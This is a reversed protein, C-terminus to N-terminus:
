QNPALKVRAQKTETGRQYDITVESLAEKESLALQLADLTAIANGDVRLIQDGIKIGQAAASSEKAVAKVLMGAPSQEVEIGWDPEMGPSWKGIKEGELLKSLQSEITGWHVRTYLMGGYPSQRAALGIIQGDTSFLPSGVAQQMDNRDIWLSSKYARRLQVVEPAIKPIGESTRPWNASLYPRDFQLDDSNWIGVTPFQQDKVNLRIITVDMARSTGRIEGELVKEGMPEPGAFNGTTLHVKVMGSKGSLPHASTMLWGNNNIIAAGLRRGDDLEIWAMAPWVRQMLNLSLEERAKRNVQEPSPAQPILVFDEQRRAFYIHDIWATEGGVASLTAADLDCSGFDAYLDRTIVVWHSPLRDNWVRISSEIIPKGPGVLFCPVELRNDRSSLEIAAHGDGQKKVAFRVFRYQGWAPQERVEITRGFDIKARDGPTIALSQQGYYKEIDTFASTAQPHESELQTAIREELARFLTPLQPLVAISRFFVPPSEPSTIMRLEVELSGSRGRQIGALSVVLPRFDAPHEHMQRQPVPLEAVAEGDLRVEIRPEMGRAQVRTVGITLWEDTPSLKFSKRLILPEGKLGISTLLQQPNKARKDYSVEVEIKDIAPTGAPTIVEWSEWAAFQQGLRSAIQQDVFSKDLTVLVDGWNARDRIDLPDAGAPRDTHVPDVEFFLEAPESLEFALDRFEEIRSSGVIIPSTWLDRPQNGALKLSGRLCGGSYSSRDISLSGRMNVKTAPLMVRLRWGSTMGVGSGLERLTSALEDGGSSRSARPPSGSLTSSALRESTFPIRALPIESPLFSRRAAIDRSPVWLLDISWAPQLGHIWRHSEGSNGEGRPFYREISTTAILGGISEVQLLRSTGNPTLTAVEDFYNKWFDGTPLTIEAIDQWLVRRSGETELLNVVGDGFRAARFSVSRGDRYHMEGPRASEGVHKQWVIRKVSGAKVRIEGSRQKDPPELAITARVLFYDGVDDWPHAASSSYGVVTGPLRDGTHMELYASPADPLTLTRDRMWLLPNGQDLLAQGDIRPNAKPEHWDTLANGQIIQGGSLMAIYRPRSDAAQSSSASLLAILLLMLAGLAASM